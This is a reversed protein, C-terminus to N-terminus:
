RPGRRADATVAAWAAAAIAAKLDPYALGPADPGAGVLYTGPRLPGQEEAALERVAARLRRRLQNREVAGGLSRGVAYAVRPPGDPAGRGPAAALYTVSLPGHRARRGRRALDVFSGRDRVRWIM